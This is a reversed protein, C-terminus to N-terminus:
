PDKRENGRKGARGIGTDLLAPWRRARVPHQPGRVRPAPDYFTWVKTANNFHFVRVLNDGVESLAGPLATASGTVSAEALVELQVVRTEEGVMVEVPYFGPDLYPVLVGTIMVNGHRDTNLNQGGLRNVGDINVHDVLAYPPM